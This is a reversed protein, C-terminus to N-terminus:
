DESQDVEGDDDDDYALRGSRADELIADINNLGTYPDIYPDKWRAM